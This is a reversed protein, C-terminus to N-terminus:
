MGSETVKRNLNDKNEKIGISKSSHSKSLGSYKTNQVFIKFYIDEKSKLNKMEGQYKEVEKYCVDESLLSDDEKEASM